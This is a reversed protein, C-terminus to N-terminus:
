GRQYGWPKNGPEACDGCQGPRVHRKSRAHARDYEEVAHPAIRTIKGASKRHKGVGVVAGDVGRGVSVPACIEDRIRVSLQARGELCRHRVGRGTLNINHSM